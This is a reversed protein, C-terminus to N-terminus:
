ESSSCHASGCSGILSAAQFIEKFEALARRQVMIDDVKIAKLKVMVEEREQNVQRLHRKLHEMMQQLARLKDELSSRQSEPVQDLLTDTQDPQQNQQLISSFIHAYVELTASMLRVDNYRQCSNNSIFLPDTILDVQTLKLGRAVSDHNQKLNKSIYQCPAGLTMVAGLLVLLCITVFHSPM